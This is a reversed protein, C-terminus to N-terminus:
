MNPRPNSKSKLQYKLQGTESTETPPSNSQNVFNKLSNIYNELGPSIAM